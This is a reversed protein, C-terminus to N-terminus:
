RLFQTDTNLYFPSLKYVKMYLNAIITNTKSQKRNILLNMKKM